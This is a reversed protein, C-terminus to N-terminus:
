RGRPVCSPVTSLLPSPMIQLPKLILTSAHLGKFDRADDVRRAVAHPLGPGLDLLELLPEPGLAEGHAIALHVETRAAPQMVPQVSGAAHLHPALRGVALDHLRLADAPRLREGVLVAARGRMRHRRGPRALHVRRHKELLLARLLRLDRHAPQRDLARALRLELGELVAAGAHILSPAPGELLEVFKKRFSSWALGVTNTRRRCTRPPSRTRCSCARRSPR